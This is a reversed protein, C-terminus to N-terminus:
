IGTDENELLTSNELKENAPELKVHYGDIQIVEEIADIHMKKLLYLEKKKIVEKAEQLTAAVAFFHTHLEHVGIEPDSYGVHAIYLKVEKETRRL